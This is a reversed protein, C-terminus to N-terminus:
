QTAGVLWIFYLGVGYVSRLGLVLPASKSCGFSHRGSRHRLADLRKQRVHLVTCHRIPRAIKRVRLQRAVVDLEDNLGFDRGCAVFTEVGCTTASSPRMFYHKPALRTQSRRAGGGRGKNKPQARLLHVAVDKVNAAEISAEVM